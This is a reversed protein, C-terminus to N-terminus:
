GRVLKRRALVENMYLGGVFTGRHNRYHNAMSKKRNEALNELILGGNDSFGNIKRRISFSPGILNM